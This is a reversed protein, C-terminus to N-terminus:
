PRFVMTRGGITLANIAAPALTFHGDLAEALTKEPAARSSSPSLDSLEARNLTGSRSREFGAVQLAGSYGLTLLIAQGDDQAPLFPAVILACGPRGDPLLRACAEGWDRVDLIDLEAIIADRLAIAEPTGPRVPLKAMLDARAQRDSAARQDPTVTGRDENIRALLAEQGPETARQALAALAAEGAKGWRHLAALDLTALPMRGSTYRSLQDRASIREANLVPTLWLAALGLSVLALALNAARVRKRWGTGRLVALAYLLGYALAMLAVIASALRSPTWGYQALRFWIGLAGLLALVPTCLALVQTARVMLRNSAAEAGSEDVSVTILLVASLAMALLTGTSSVGGYLRSLGYFPLAALFILSVLLLIPLLLRLLRLTLFPSIFDSLENVVALGLGLSAGTILWPVVAIDLFHSLFSLGVVSFLALSLYILLWIAGVFVWVAATRIVLGWAQRFLTPYDAWGPGVSAILFPLPLSALAVVAVVTEPQTFLDGASHYRLSAWTVCGAVVLALGLARGALRQLPVTGAMALVAAFFTAALASVFLYARDHQAFYPYDRSLAQLAVGALAGFAALRLRVLTTSKIALM